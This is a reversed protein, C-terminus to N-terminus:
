LTGSEDKCGLGAMITLRELNVDGHREDHALASFGMLQIHNAVSIAIEYARFASAATVSDAVWSNALTGNEPIRSHEVVIVIAYGHNQPTSESLWCSDSLSCIGVQSANLFYASGKIDIMRRRLDDPVPAKAAVPDDDRLSHFIEHYNSISDGFGAAYSNDNTPRRTRSAEIERVLRSRDRSLRELPYPGLHYPRSKNSFFIVESKAM